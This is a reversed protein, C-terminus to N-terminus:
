ISYNQQLCKTHSFPNMRGMLSLIGKNEDLILEDLFKMRILHFEKQKENILASLNVGYEPVISSILPLTILAIAKFIFFILLSLFM